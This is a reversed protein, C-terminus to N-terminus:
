RNFKQWSHSAFKIPLELQELGVTGITM